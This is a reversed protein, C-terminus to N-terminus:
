IIANIYETVVEGAMSLLLAMSSPDIAAREDFDPIRHWMHLSNRCRTLAYRDLAAWDGHASGSTPSFVLNYDDQLGVDAAMKWASVDSFTSDLDIDQFEEWLDANVEATLHKLYDELHAPVEVQADIYAELHLKLLKLRGRGYDKYKTYLTPDNKKGLWRILIKAEVVSRMLGAGYEDTWLLPSTLAGQVLRVTRAALGTLVEYKDPVYLDPDVHLAVEEFRSKLEETTQSLGSMIDHVQERTPEKVDARSSGNPKICAYLSWNARWFEQCWDLRAQSEGDVHLNVMGLFTARIFTDARAREDEDLDNPYRPLLELAPMERPFHIKGGKMMGRLFMFKTLMPVLHQGHFSEAIVPALFAEARAPDPTTGDAFRREVLWFGPANPYLALAHALGEPFARENLNLKELHDLIRERAEKPISEFQTLRGWVDADIRLTGLAENITLLTEAMVYMGRNLDNNILACMWLFDPFMDKLWSQLHM